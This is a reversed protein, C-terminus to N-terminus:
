ACHETALEVIATLPWFNVGDATHVGECSQSSSLQRQLTEVTAETTAHSCHMNSSIMAAFEGLGSGFAPEVKTNFPRNSGDNTIAVDSDGEGAYPAAHREDVLTVIGAVDRDNARGDLQSPGTASSSLKGAVIRATPM